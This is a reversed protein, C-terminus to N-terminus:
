RLRFRGRNGSQLPLKRANAVLHGSGAKLTNLLLKHQVKRAHTVGGVRVVGVVGGGVEAGVIRCGPLGHEVVCPAGNDGGEGVVVAIRVHKGLGAQKHVCVFQHDLRTACRAEQVGDGVDDLKGTIHPHLGVRHEVAALVESERLALGVRVAGELLLHGVEVGEEVRGDGFHKTRAVVLVPAEVQGVQRGLAASSGGMVLDKLNHHHVQVGGLHGPEEHVRRAPVSLVHRM